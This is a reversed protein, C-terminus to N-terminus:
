CMKSELSFKYISVKVAHDCSLAVCHFLLMDTFVCSHLEKNMHTMTTYASKAQFNDNFGSHLEASVACVLNHLFPVSKYLWM